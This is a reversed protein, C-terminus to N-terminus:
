KIPTHRDEWRTHQKTVTDAFFVIAWRVTDGSKQYRSAQKQVVDHWAPRFDESTIRYLQLGPMFLAQGDRHRVERLTKQNRGIRLGPASEALALTYAGQDYHGKALFKKKGSDHYKLFRLYFHPHVNRPFFQPYLEPFETDFEKILTRITKEAERYIRRAHKFFSIVSSNGQRILHSFGEEAYRNYHFYEKQDHFHRGSAGRIRERERKVYGVMSEPDDDVVHLHFQRKLSDPLNTFELFIDAAEQLERRPISIPLPHYNRRRINQRIRNLSM